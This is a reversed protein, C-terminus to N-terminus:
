LRDIAALLEDAHTAPDVNTWIDAVRGDRDVLFTSRLVGEVVEGSRRTRQGWADFTDIVRREPDALLRHPLDFRAAFDAHSAVDDASIGVVAAGAREFEAWHDRIGCAQTTCGPTDDRPYFYIVLPRGRYSALDIEAGTQDPLRVEPLQQGVEIAM